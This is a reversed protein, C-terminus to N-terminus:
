GDRIGFHKGNYSLAIGAQLLTERGCRCYLLQHNPELRSTRVQHYVPFPRHAPDPEAAADPPAADDSIDSYAPSRVGPTPSRRARRKGPSEEAVSDTSKREESPM